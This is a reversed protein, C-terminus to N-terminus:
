KNVNYIEACINSAKEAGVGQQLLDHICMLRKQDIPIIAPRRYNKKVRKYVPFTCGSVLQFIAFVM